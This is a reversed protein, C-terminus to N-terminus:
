QVQRLFAYVFLLLVGAGILVPVISQLVPGFTTEDDAYNTLATTFDSWIAALVLVLVMAGIVLGIWMGVNIEGREDHRLDDWKSM